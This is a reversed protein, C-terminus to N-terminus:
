PVATLLGTVVLVAIGLMLSVDVLDREAKAARARRLLVLVGIMAAFLVHKVVMFKSWASEYSGFGDFHPDSTMMMLGTALLLAASVASLVFFRRYLPAQVADQAAEEPLARKVSPRFALVLVALGGIWVVAAILHVANGLGEFM